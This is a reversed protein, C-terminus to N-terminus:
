LDGLKYRTLVLILVVNAKDRQQKDKCGFAPTEQCGLYVEKFVKVKVKNNM